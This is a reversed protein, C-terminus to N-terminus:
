ARGAQDWETMMKEIKAALVFDAETLGSIKHTYIVLDLQKFSIFFDPHHGAAEAVEAVKNAAQMTQAFSQFLFGKALHHAGILKWDGPLQQLLDQAQVYTLPPVGGQCPICTQM